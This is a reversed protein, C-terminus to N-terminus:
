RFKELMTFFIWVLIRFEPGSRVQISKMRNLFNREVKVLVCSKLFIIEFETAENVCLKGHILPTEMHLMNEAPIICSIMTHLILSIHTVPEDIYGMQCLITSQFWPRVITQICKVSIPFNQEVKFRM